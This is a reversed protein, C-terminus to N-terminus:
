GALERASLAATLLAVLAETQLDVSSVVDEDSGDLARAALGAKTDIIEAIRTDVTQAAILRWATVPEDQGIRHVRDIAQTQEAATWSLEALVVNSAVQLNVGVGAAALSCVIVEIEPDNVFSDINRTRAATSQDGRISAYKIGRKAFNAEAVDMVDIHRAFFVVKGVNRALQATYDAALEAKARGIRRMLGFVNEGTKEDGDEREWGAVRRVLDHDIGAVEHGEKRAALASDYRAVLRRTLEAEAARISRGAEGDLEVPIDAIRREPIDKAVDVKRRRVIGQEIVARRAAPFFAPELPTLGTDELADMLPGLPKRDDIWGLFQWIARFDDIDNILPTGTLAMLLPRGITRRISAAVHLVHQSRQSSKNKIFHAEDVVMGRFGLETLWGVHRDLVEYNVIIIDAFGDITDGDGHIVTAPHRPTWREAERAWNTKVVNPVVVLLPYADAAQAALLAQATKGLGPEDALLFSRHEKAAEVLEAQHHMLELGEPVKILGPEPLVMCAPAGSDAQEFSRFLPGLLEWRALESDRHRRRPASFDPVMFPNALRRSLVSQPVVRRPESESPEVQKPAPVEEAVEIGGATKIERILARAESDVEAGDGLLEFLTSDRGATQALITAIGDLRKLEEGRRSESLTEDAKIRLREERALLAVVQFKTRTSPAISRKEVASEVERVARALQPIIGGEDRARGNAPRRTQTGTRRAGSQRQRTRAM